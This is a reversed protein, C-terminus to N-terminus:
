GGILEASKELTAGGLAFEFTLETNDPVGLLTDPFDFSMREPVTGTPEIQAEKEEGGETWKM